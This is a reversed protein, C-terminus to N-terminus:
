IHILSLANGILIWEDTWANDACSSGNGLFPVDFNDCVFIPACSPAPPPNPSSGGGGM